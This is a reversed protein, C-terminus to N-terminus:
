SLSTILCSNSLCSRLLVTFLEVPVHIYLMLLAMGLLDVISKSNADVKVANELNKTWCVNLTDPCPSVSRM